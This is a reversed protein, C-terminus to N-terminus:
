IGTEEVICGGTGDGDLLDAGSAELEVDDHRGAEEGAEELGSAGVVRVEVQSKLGWGQGGLRREESVANGAALKEDEEDDATQQGDEEEEVEITQEGGDDGVDDPGVGPVAVTDVDINSSQLYGEQAAADEEGAQAVVAGVLSQQDLM